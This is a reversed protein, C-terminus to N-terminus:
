KQALINSILEHTVSFVGWYKQFVEFDELNLTMFDFAPVVFPPKEEYFTKNWKSVYEQDIPLYPYRQSFHTLIVYDAKITKAIDLAQGLTCHTKEEADKELGDKFTAEQLLIIKGNINKEQFEERNKRAIDGLNEM